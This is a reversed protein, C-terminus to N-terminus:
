CSGIYNEVVTAESLKKKTRVAMIGPLLVLQSSLVCVWWQGNDPEGGVCIVRYTQLAIYM